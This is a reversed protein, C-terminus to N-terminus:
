LTRECVFFTSFVFFLVVITLSRSNGAAIGEVAWRGLLVQKESMFMLGGGGGGESWRVEGANKKGRREHVCFCLM